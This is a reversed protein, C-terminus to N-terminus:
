HNVFTITVLSAVTTDRYIDKNHKNVWNFGLNNETTM